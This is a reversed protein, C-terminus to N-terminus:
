FSLYSSNKNTKSTETSVKMLIVLLSTNFMGVHHDVHGLLRLCLCPIQSQLHIKPTDPFHSHSTSM